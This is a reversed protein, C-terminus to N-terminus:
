VREVYEGTSTNVLVMDGAKIFLPTRIEIGTELSVSKTVAGASNGKIGEPASVVKLAIKTPLVISVPRDNYILVDVTQGDVLYDTMSGLAEKSFQFQEFSENDMFFFDDDQRYLFNAQGRSMDAGEIDDSGNFTKELTNGSVLNKLKTKVVAGGRAVKIHQAAVIQYPEDNISLVNGLKLDSLSLM